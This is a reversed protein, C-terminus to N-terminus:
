NVFNSWKKLFANNNNSTLAIYREIEIKDKVLNVFDAFQFKVKNLAKYYLFYKGILILHNLTSCSPWGNLVGYMIENESLSLTQKSLSQYWEIFDSWFSNAIPCSVFLHTVTQDINTCFPCHPDQVKKMKHLIYNTYLVNHIIKYQFISLKVEKTTLFPLSYRKQRDDADFGFETLRKEATPPVFNQSEVLLKYITKCTLKNISPLNITTTQQGQKLSNKWDNPIASLLGHYQLFNCKVQFHNVFANFSLFRKKSEDLLSILKYIGAQHWKQFYVSTKNVKIFRNNWVIQDLVDKKTTPTANILEQWHSIIDKYFSPLNKNLHLSKVDYNCSFLLTGGINSLLRLPILKWPQNGESCLRRM